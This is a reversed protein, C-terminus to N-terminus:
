FKRLICDLVANRVTEDYDKWYKILRCMQHWRFYDGEKKYEKKLYTLMKIEKNLTM